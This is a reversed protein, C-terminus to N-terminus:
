RYRCWGVGVTLYGSVGDNEPVSLDAAPRHVLAVRGVFMAVQQSISKDTHQTLMGEVATEAWQCPPPHHRRPYLSEMLYM